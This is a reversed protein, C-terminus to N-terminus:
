KIKETINLAHVPTLMVSGQRHFVKVPYSHGPHPSVVANSYRTLSSKLAAISLLQSISISSGKPITYRTFSKIQKILASNYDKSNVELFKFKYIFPVKISTGKKKHLSFPVQNYTGKELKIHYHIVL